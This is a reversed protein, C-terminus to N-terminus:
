SFSIALALDAIQSYTSCINVNGQGVHCRGCSSAYIPIFFNRRQWRTYTYMVSCFDPESVNENLSKEKIPWNKTERPHRSKPGPLPSRQCGWWTSLFSPEIVPSHIFTDLASLSVYRSLQPLLRIFKRLIAMVVDPRTPLQRCLRRRSGAVVHCRAAGGHSCVGRGGNWWGCQCPVTQRDTQRM